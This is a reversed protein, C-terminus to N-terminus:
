LVARQRAARRPEGAAAAERGADTVTWREETAAVGAGLRMLRPLASALVQGVPHHYYEAAWQILALASAELPPAADLVELIPKLREAPLDSTGSVGMVVGIMRRRGFPVRVRTGPRPEADGSAQAPPLYDFLRRLPTDVAVRFFQPNPRM